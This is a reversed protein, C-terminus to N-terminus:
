RSSCDVCLNDLNRKECGFVTLKLLINCFNSVFFAYSQLLGVGVLCVDRAGM